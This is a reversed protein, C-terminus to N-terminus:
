RDAYGLDSVVEALDEAVLDPEPSVPLDARKTVGSLVLAFTVGLRAALRGDTDPRDGVVVRVPGHRTAVLEAMPAEPKGAVEPQVGSATAIFAILAGAGPVPDGGTPFTADLNTAIFRAGKRIATAAAALEDYDLERTRGVVVVPPAESVSVVEVGAEQLAERIGEGGVVAASSGSTLMSAAAMASTVLDDPEVRVGAAVLTAVLEARSPGSNNTVFVVQQEAHRLEELANVAGP